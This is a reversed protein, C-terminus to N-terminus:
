KHPFETRSSSLHCGPALAWLAHLRGRWAEARQAGRHLCARSLQCGSSPPEVNGPQPSATSSPHQRGRLLGFGGSLDKGSLAMPPGTLFGCATMAGHGTKQGPEPALM